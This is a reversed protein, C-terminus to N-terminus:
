PFLQTAGCLLPCEAAASDVLQTATLFGRVATFLTLASTQTASNDLNAVFCSTGSAAFVGGFANPVALVNVLSSDISYVDTSVLANGYRSCQDRRYTAYTTCAM